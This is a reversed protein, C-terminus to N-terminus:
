QDQGRLPKESPTAFADTLWMTAVEVCLDHPWQCRENSSRADSKVKDVLHLFETNTTRTMLRRKARELNM